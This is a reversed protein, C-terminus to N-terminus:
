MEASVVTYGTESIIEKLKEMDLMEESKIEMTGKKHSSSVKKVHFNNRIVNNLHSECMGCSMGDIHLLIKMM